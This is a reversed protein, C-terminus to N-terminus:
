AYRQEFTAVATQAALVSTEVRDDFPLQMATEITFALGYRDAAFDSLNLGEGRNNALLWLVGEPDKEFFSRHMYDAAVMPAGSQRVADLMADALRKEWKEDEEQRQHRASFWFADGGYEHLDLTLGPRIRAMLDRTCRSEVPAWPTDHFRNIHLVEGDPTVILSYARQLPATGEIGDDRAPFFIRRGKLAELFDAGKDFREYLGHTAYGYEGILVLLVDDEQYLVEGHSALFDRTEELDTLKPVAPLSLGLAYNFGNLGIPDRCPLIHVEHRTDLRDALAVAASVGAQETAHSGASIFVAPQRDGGTRVSVIPAGDPARGLVTSAHGQKELCSILDAYQDFAPM